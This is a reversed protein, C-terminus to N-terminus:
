LTRVRITDTGGKLGPQRGSVLVVIAGKEFFNEEVLQRALELGATEGDPRVFSKNAYLLALQQAVRADSTVSIIPMSPRHAAISMATIGTKTEAVIADAKIQQALTVAASSIADQRDAM